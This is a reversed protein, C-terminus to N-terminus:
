KRHRWFVDPVEFYDGDQKITPMKMEAFFPTTLEDDSKDSCVLNRINKGNSAIVIGRFNTGAGLVYFISYDIEGNHFQVFEGGIGSYM